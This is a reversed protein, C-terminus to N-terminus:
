ANLKIFNLRAAAYGFMGGAWPMSFVLVNAMISTHPAPNIACWLGMLSTYLMVWILGQLVAQTMISKTFEDMNSGARKGMVIYGLTLIAIGLACAYKVPMTQWDAIAMAGLIIAVILGILHVGLFLADHAHTKRASLREPDLLKSTM